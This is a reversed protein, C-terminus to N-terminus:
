SGVPEAVVDEDAVRDAGPQDRQAWDRHTAWLFREVGEIVPATRPSLFVDFAHQAGHLDAFVVAADSAERLEAVFRQADAFPALTDQDGHIVLFPPADAHVRDRPSAAAFAEPEDALFAKMVWRELFLSVFGPVQTGDRDTFDYVGYFPVAAQVSVDADEFGPQLSRDDATLAVLATLHGGASGGTVAIFDPDIGYEDAHERIWAIARKCDVLHEPWTAFPSLRYNVNFGVWGNAALHTLLPIGQERKDGLVWGGGHIQVIARRREGEARPARPEYVDLRLRRGGARAYEVNRTVRVDRRKVFIPMWVRWRPIRPGPEDGVLHELADRMTVAAGRGRLLLVGLLVWNAVLLALALRAPWRDLDGVVAFAVTGFVQWAIWWGALENTLWSAFFSPLFVVKNRKTPALANLTSVFLLATVVLFAWAAFGSTM